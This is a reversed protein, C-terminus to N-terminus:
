QRRKKVEMSKLITNSLLEMQEQSHNAQITWRLGINSAGAFYSGVQPVCIHQEKLATQIAPLSDLGSVYFIPVHPNSSTNLQAVSKRMIQMNSQLKQITSEPSEMLLRLSEMTAAAIVPSLPTSSRYAGSREIIRGIVDGSALVFGGQTGFAKSFTGTTILNSASALGFFERAGKGSDGLVGLSHAEDLILFDSSDLEEFIPRPDSVNGNMADIPELFFGKRFREPCTKLSPFSLTKGGLNVKNDGNADDIVYVMKKSQAIAALISRHANPQIVWADVLDEIADVVAFNSIYGSPLILASKSGVFQAIRNELAILVASEGSTLRSAGASFGFRQFAENAAELLERRHALGLYNTGGFYLYTEGEIKVSVGNNELILM